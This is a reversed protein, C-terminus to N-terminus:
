GAPDADGIIGEPQAPAIRSRDYLEEQPLWSIQREGGGAPLHGFEAKKARFFSLRLREVNQGAFAVSYQQSKNKAILVSVFDCKPATGIIRMRFKFDYNLNKM